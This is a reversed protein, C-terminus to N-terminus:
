KRMYKPDLKLNLDHLTGTPRVRQTKQLFKFIDESRNTLITSEFLDLNETVSPLKLEGYIEILENKSVGLAAMIDAMAAEDQAEVKSLAWFWAKLLDSVQGFSVNGSAVQDNSLVLVDIIVYPDVSSNYIEQCGENKLYTSFPEFTVFTNAMKQQVAELHGDVPVSILDAVDSIDSGVHELFKYLFYGGLATEEYAVQAKSVDFEQMTSCIKDAGDSVDLVAIISIDLGKDAIMVAEDLTLAAVDILGFEFASSVESANFFRQVEINSSDFNPMRNAAVFLPEYGPWINTGVRLERSEAVGALCTLVSFVALMGKTMEKVGEKHKPDHNNSGSSRCKKGIYALM